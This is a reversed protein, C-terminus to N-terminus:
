KKLAIKQAQMGKDTNVPEFTVQDNERLRLGEPVATYHVFYDQEDSGKIFGYGKKLNFWRVVGEM